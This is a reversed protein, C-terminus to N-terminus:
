RSASHRVGSMREGTMGYTVAPSDPRPRPAKASPRPAGSLTEVVLEDRTVRNTM